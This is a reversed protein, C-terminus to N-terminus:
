EKREPVLWRVFRKVNYGVKEIRNNYPLQRAEPVEGAHAFLDDRNSEFWDEWAPASCNHTYGTLRVLAEECQHAVVFGEDTLGNILARVSEETLYHGLGRAAATRVQRDKDSSLREILTKCAKDQYEEPVQGAASLDALASTADWRCLAGPPQIEEPPYQRYNLLKLMTEVARPDGTRALARIAVCRAQPDTDLLTITIYGHIAWDRNFQKSQAVKTLAARRTDPDPSAFAVVMHQQPTRKPEFLNVIFNNKQADGCGTIFAAIVVLLTAIVGVSGSPQNKSQEWTM